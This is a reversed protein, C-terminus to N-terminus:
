TCSIVLRTHEGLPGPSRAPRDRWLGVHRLIKEVSARDHIFAVVRMEGGCRECGSPNEKWIRAILKAWAQRALSAPRPPETRVLGLQGRKRREGRSRSAYWGFYRTTHWGKPPVVTLIRALAELPDLLECDAGGVRRLAYNRGVMPNMKSTYLFTTEDPSLRAHKEAYPGRGLYRILREAPREADPDAGEEGTVDRASVAV